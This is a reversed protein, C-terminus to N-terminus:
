RRRRDGPRPHSRTGSCGWRCCRRVPSSPRRSPPPDSERVSVVGERRRVTRGGHPQALESDTLQERRQALSRRCRRATRCGRQGLCEGPRARRAPPRTRLRRGTPPVHVGARTRPERLKSSSPQVSGVRGEQGVSVVLRMRPRDCHRLLDRCAGISETNSVSGRGPAIDSIARRRHPPPQGSSARGVAVTARRRASSSHCSCRPPPRGRASGPRRRRARDEVEAIELELELAKVIHGLASAVRATGVIPAFKAALVGATERDADVQLDGAAGLNLVDSVTLADVAILAAIRVLMFTEPDLSSAQVSGATMAALLDLVPTDATDAM